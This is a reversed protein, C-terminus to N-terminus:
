SAQLTGEQQTKAWLKWGSEDRAVTRAAKVELVLVGLGPALILFDCEGESQNIHRGLELAIFFPGTLVRQAEESHMM